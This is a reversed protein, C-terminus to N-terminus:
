VKLMNMQVVRVARTGIKTKFLFFTWLHQLIITASFQIQGSILSSVQCCELEREAYLGTQLDQKFLNSTNNEKLGMGDQVAVGSGDDLPDVVLVGPLAVVELALVEELGM